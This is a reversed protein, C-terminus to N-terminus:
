YHAPVNSQEKHEAWRYEAVQAMTSVVRHLDIYNSMKGKKQSEAAVVLSSLTERERKKKGVSEGMGYVTNLYSNVSGIRIFHRGIACTHFNQFLTLLLIFDLLPFSLLM